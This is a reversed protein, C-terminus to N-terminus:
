GLFMGKAWQGEKIVQGEIGYLIGYGHINNNSFEGVYKKGDCFTLIGQNDRMNDYFEGEYM